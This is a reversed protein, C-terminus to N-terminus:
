SSLFLRIIKKPDLKPLKEGLSPYSNRLFIFAVIFGPSRNKIPRSRIFSTGVKSDAYLSEWPIVACNLRLTRDLILSSSSASKSRALKAWRQM